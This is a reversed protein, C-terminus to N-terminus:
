SPREAACARTESPVALTMVGLIRDSRRVAVCVRGAAHSITATGFRNLRAVVLPESRGSAIEEAALGVAMTAQARQTVGGILSSGFIFMGLVLPTLLAFELTISGRSAFGFVRLSASGAWM